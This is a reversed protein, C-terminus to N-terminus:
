RAKQRRKSGWRIHQPHPGPRRPERLRLQHLIQPAAPFRISPGLREPGLM